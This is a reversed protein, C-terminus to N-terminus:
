AHQLLWRAASRDDNFMKCPYGPNNLGLFFNGIIRTTRSPTVMALAAVNRGAEETAYYERVGPGTRYPVRMDVMLLRKTGQALGDFARTNERADDLTQEGTQVIAQVIIGDSREHYESTRTRAIPTPTLRSM